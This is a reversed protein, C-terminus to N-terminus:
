PQIQQLNVMLQGDGQDSAAVTGRWNASTIETVKSEIGGVTQTTESGVTFGAGTLQALYADHVAVANPAQMVLSINSLGNESWVTSGVVTGSPAPISSPWEDPFNNGASLAFEDGDADTGSLFAGDEDGSLDLTFEEEDDSFTFGDSSLDIEVEEGSDREIAEELGEEFAVEALKGCSSLGLALLTGLALTGFRRTPASRTTISGTTTPRTTVSM